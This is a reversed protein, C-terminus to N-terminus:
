PLQTVQWEGAVREALMLSSAGYNYAVVPVGDPAIAISLHAPLAWTDVQTMPWLFPVAGGHAVHLPGGHLYTSPTTTAVWTESGADVALSVGPCMQNSVLIWELAWTGSRNTRSEAYGGVGRYDCYGRGGHAAGDPGVALSPDDWGHRTITVDESTWPPGFTHRMTTYQPDPNGTWYALHVVGDGDLAIAPSAYYGAADVLDHTWVGDDGRTALTAGPTDVRNVVIMPQDSANLAIASGLYTAEPPAIEEITWVCDLGTDDDADDDSDDDPATDDDIDDDPVTDDDLDDDPVTDDDTEDDDADDDVDDDPVEDDDGSDDDGGDDDELPPWECDCAGFWVFLCVAALISPWPLDRM